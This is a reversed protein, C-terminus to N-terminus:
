HQQRRHQKGEGEINRTNYMKCVKWNQIKHVKNRMKTHINMVKTSEVESWALEKDFPSFSFHQLPMLTFTMVSGFYFVRESCSM